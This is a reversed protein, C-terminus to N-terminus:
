PSGRRGQTPCCRLEDREVRAEMQRSWEHDWSAHEALQTSIANIREDVRALMARTAWGVAAISGLTTLLGVLAMASSTFVAHRRSM